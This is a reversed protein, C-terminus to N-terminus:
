WTGPGATQVQPPVDGVVVLGTVVEVGVVVLDVVVVVGDGDAVPM